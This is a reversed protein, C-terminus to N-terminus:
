FDSPLDFGCEPCVEMEGEIESGCDPCEGIRVNKPEEMLFVAHPWALLLLVSGYLWWLLFSRGKRHAISAPILGLILLLALVPDEV